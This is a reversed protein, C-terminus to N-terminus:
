CHEAVYRVFDSETVIGVLRSGEVVPLCGLKHELMLGAAEDVGDTPEVTIPDGVMVSDVSRHALMDERVTIPLDDKSSVTGRAVDRRTVLGVLEREGDVIPVHRIDHESMLELVAALSDSRRLTLVDAVMLEQVLMKGM